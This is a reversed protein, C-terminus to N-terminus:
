SETENNAKEKCLTWELTQVTPAKSIVEYIDNSKYWAQHDDSNAGHVMEGRNNLHYWDIEEVADLLKDADILRM